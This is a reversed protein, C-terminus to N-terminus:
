HAGPEGSAHKFAQLVEKLEMDAAEKRKELEQLTKSLRPLEQEIAAISSDLREAIRPTEKFLFCRGVSLFARSDEPLEAVAARVFKNRNYERQKIVISRKLSDVQEDMENVKEQVALAEDANFDAGGVASHGIQSKRRQQEALRDVCAAKLRLLDADNPSIRLGAECFEIANKNLDLHMSAKAARWYSKMNHCDLEIAKRCDNVAEVFQRLLIRVHASNSYLQANLVNDSCRVELGESFCQLAERAASKTGDKLKENGRKKHGEASLRKAAVEAETTSAASQLGQSTGRM